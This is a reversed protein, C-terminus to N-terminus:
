GGGGVLQRALANHREVLPGADVTALQGERVVIRGNVVTCAASPPACLLLSAVPDHVAGGALPLSRLDFLAMDAAMGPALQGIDDRGLVRAGGRPADDLRGFVLVVAADGPSQRDDPLLAFASAM